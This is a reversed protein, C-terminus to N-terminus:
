VFAPLDVSNLASVRAPAYAASWSNAVRSVVVRRSKRAGIPVIVRDSVTPNMRPSGCVSTAANRAVSSSVICASRSSCTTSADLGVRSRWISSTM